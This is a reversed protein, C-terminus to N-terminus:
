GVDYSLWSCQMNEATDTQPHTQKDVRYSGFSYVCSLSVQPLHMACLDRGLKCKSTMAGGGGPHAFGSNHRKRQTM